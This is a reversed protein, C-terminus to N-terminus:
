EPKLEFADSRAGRGQGFFEGVRAMLYKKRCLNWVQEKESESALQVLRMRRTAKGVRVEVMPNKRANRM